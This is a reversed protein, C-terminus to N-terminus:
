NTQYVTKNINILHLKEMLIPRATKSFISKVQGKKMYTFFKLPFANLKLKDIIHM